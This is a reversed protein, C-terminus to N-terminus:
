RRPWAEVDSFRNLTWGADGPTPIAAPDGVAFWVLRGFPDTFGGVPNWASEPPPALGLQLWGNWPFDKLKVTRLFMPSALGELSGYSLNEIGASFSANFYERKLTYGVVMAHCGSVLLRVIERELNIREEASHFAFEQLRGVAANVRQKHVEDLIAGGLVRYAQYWGSRVWAPGLWGNLAVTDDAVLAAASVEEIVADWPADETRWQPRVLGRTRESAARVELAGSVPAAALLRRRAAEARDVHDLYDGHLPTVPYPHVILGGGREAADRVIAAVAACASAEDRALGSEPNLRVVVFSGLSEVSSIGDPVAAAFQPLDGIYAHLKGGAMPEGARQPPMAAIEIEHPYYSPYVPQEHGSWAAGAALLAAATLVFARRMSM